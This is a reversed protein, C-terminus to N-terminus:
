LKLLVVNCKNVRYQAIGMSKRFARLSELLSGSGRAGSEAFLARRVTQRADPSLAGWCLLLM